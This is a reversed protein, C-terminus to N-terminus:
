MSTDRCLCTRDLIYISNPQFGQFLWEREKRLEQKENLPLLLTLFISVLRCVVTKGVYPQGPRWHWSQNPSSSM